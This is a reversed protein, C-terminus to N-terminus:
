KCVGDSVLYSGNSSFSLCVTEDRVTVTWALADRTATVGSVLKLIKPVSSSVASGTGAKAAEQAGLGIVSSVQTAFLFKATSRVDPNLEAFYVAPCRVSSPPDALTPGVHVCSFGAHYDDSVLLAYGRPAHPITENYDTLYGDPWIALNYNAKLAANFLANPLTLKGHSARAAKYAAQAVALPSKQGAADAPASITACVILAAFVTSASRVFLDRM